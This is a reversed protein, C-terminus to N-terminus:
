DSTTAAEAIALAREVSAILHTPRYPKPLQVAPVDTAVATLDGSAFVIGLQPRQARATRALDPGSMGPLNVDTILVDIPLTSIATIAEEASAADIVAFGSAQLMEASSMRILDDDEVLLITRRTVREAITAVSSGVNGMAARNEKRQRQNALVHNFKRALAERSYPKSLLEIGADLKGGHVISNETYGSTFLVAIDPLRERAKRALEPSKLTGPMVVDTFLVDILIGSEIVSLGSAADVAKLVRYGLDSLMEVVTNRVETDDEVVLVTESGGVIPGIVTAVEVDESQMARPLYLKITTGEGVESYIKVHGGSQKVFGYVMSLGLGSGKGESKTSFFPEFVKDIVEPPMGSGTDSVALMVYQGPTIDDHAKAYDDDLHANGLEITLKGQGEMADRANIALNLLANEVQAPDIFTNWLGGGVITEVEIGEGIARRLMDDMARVFRTVNVVKPELAQRRGFALLQAALKAGRSVGAMANAVRREARDNGAIDKALLQLNGSVVQLLNNFDHAVGGTLKGVTEMKQSQALKAEAQRREDIEAIVRAELEENLVRLQDEARRRHLAERALKEAQERLAAEAARQHTIDTHVGVWERIEGADDLLPLARVVFNRWQGSHHRVRHEHVFMAKAALAARWAQTTPTVDDPHLADAWGYDQYAETSQGTLAAWGPQEGTMRGDPSNTWLVGHIADMATRFRGNSVALADERQARDEIDIALIHVGPISGDPDVHPIYRIESRRFSGDRHQLLAESFLREGALAREISPRRQEYLDPGLVTEVTEGVMTDPDIDLWDRYCGNAFRYIQDRDVYAVLMPVADTIRRLEAATAAVLREADVRASNDVMTCMIGGVRGDADHVPTYFMDLVMTEQGDPRDFVIPQDRHSMREGRYGAELIPRNWDWVDPFATAVPMGFAAPHRDGAIARYPDNYLMIHDPGWMLVKAVPSHLINTVTTRLEPPWDEIPGLATKTWDRARLISGCTGGDHPWQPHPSASQKATERARLLAMAAVLVDDADRYAGSAIQEEVFRDYEPPLALPTSQPLAPM